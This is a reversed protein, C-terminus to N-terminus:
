IVYVYFSFLKASGDRLSTSADMTWDSDKPDCYIISNGIAREVIKISIYTEIVLHTYYLTM